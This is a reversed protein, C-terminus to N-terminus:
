IREEKVEDLLARIAQRIFDSENLFRRSKLADEIDEKLRPPVQAGVFLKKCEKKNM